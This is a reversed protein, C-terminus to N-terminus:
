KLAALAQQAQVVAAGAQNIRNQDQSAIAQRLVDQFQALNQEAQAVRQYRAGVIRNLTQDGTPAGPSGPEAYPAAPAQPQPPLGAGGPKKGTREAEMRKLSEILAANPDVGTVAREIQEDSYGAAKMQARARLEQDKTMSRDKEGTIKPFLNQANTGAPLPRAEVQGSRKNFGLVSKGDDSPGIISWDEKNAQARQIGLSERAIGTRAADNDAERGKFYANMNGTALTSSRNFSRDQLARQRDASEIMGKLGASFDGNGAEWLSMHSAILEAKTLSESPMGPIQSVFMFRRSKPDFDVMAPVGSGDQGFTKYEAALQEDSLSNLRKFEAKRADDQGIKKVNAASARLGASDRQAASIRGLAQERQMETPAQTQLGAASFQRPAPANQLEFNDPQDYSALKAQLGGNRQAAAMQSANMGYTNTVQSQQEPSVGADLMAYSDFAQNERERQDDLAKYQRMQADHAEKRLGYERDANYQSQGATLGRQYSPNFGGAFGELFSAM